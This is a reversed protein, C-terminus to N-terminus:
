SGVAVSHSWHVPTLLRKLLLEDLHADIRSADDYEQGRCKLGLLCDDPNKMAKEKQFPVAVRRTLAKLQENLCKIRARRQPVNCLSAETATKELAPAPAVQAHHSQHNTGSCEFMDFM